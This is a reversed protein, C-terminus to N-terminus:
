CQKKLATLVMELTRLSSGDGVEIDMNAMHIIIPSHVPSTDEIVRLPAFVIPNSSDNQAAPLHEICTSERIKRLWYYYAHESMNNQSCWNKITLGSKQCEQIFHVWQEKRFQTKVNTIPDM